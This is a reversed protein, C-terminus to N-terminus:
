YVEILRMKLFLIVCMHINNSKNRPAMNNKNNYIQMEIYWHYISIYM